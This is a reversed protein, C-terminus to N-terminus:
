LKLELSQVHAVCRQVPARHQQRLPQALLGEGADGSGAFASSLRYRGVPEQAGFPEAPVIHPGLALWQPNGGGPHPGPLDLVPIGRPGPRQLAPAPDLTVLDDGLLREFQRLRAVHEHTIALGVHQGQREPRLLKLVCRIAQHTALLLRASGWPPLSHSRLMFLSGKSPTTNEM